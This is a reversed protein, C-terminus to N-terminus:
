GGSTRPPGSRSKPAAGTVNSEGTTSSGAGGSNPAEDPEVPSTRQQVLIEAKKQVTMKEMSAQSEKGIDEVMSKMTKSM